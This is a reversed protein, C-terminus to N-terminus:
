QQLKSSLKKKIPLLVLTLMAVTLLTLVLAVATQLVEVVVVVAVVEAILWILATAAVAAAAVTEVTVRPCVRGVLPLQLQSHLPLWVTEVDAAALSTPHSAQVRHRAVVMEADRRGTYPM